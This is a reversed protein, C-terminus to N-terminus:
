VGKVRRKPRKGEADPAQPGDDRGALAARLALLEARLEENARRENAAAEHEKAAAEDPTALLEKGEPDRALRLMPGVLPDPVVTWFLGLTECAHLRPDEPSREVLDGGVADWVRVPQEADEQDFRVLERVGAARYRALKEKWPAESEDSASVIEVGLDPAGLEWTKWLRFPRHPLGLKVFADPALCKKPTRPDYYVFQDSGITAREALERKLILYLATRIELHHNTEPMEEHDPFFVPEPPRRYVHSAPADCPTIERRDLSEYM